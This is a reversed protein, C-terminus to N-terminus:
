GIKDGKLPLEISDINRIVSLEIAGNQTKVTILNNNSNLVLGNADSNNYGMPSLKLKDIIVKKGKYFTFAGPYPYSQARVWNNIRDKQWNWNIEGDEPTRKDFYTAEVNNQPIRQLNNQGIAFLVKDLMLPYIDIYKQLIDNGTDEDEIKIIEQLVIDGTDCGQNIIHATVGTVKENNIIAWVHPTRGRYKPLLSGHFNIPYKALSIVDNEIIFLYNISLLVDLKYAKAFSFLKGKRPNGKFYPISKSKAFEIIKNSHNDTAIFEFSIHKQLHQICKLGLAGSALIAIKM